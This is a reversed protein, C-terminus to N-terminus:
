LQRAYVYSGDGVDNPDFADKIKRQWKHLAPQNFCDLPLQWKMEESIEACHVQITRGQTRSAKSHPDYFMFQEFWCIGGGGM